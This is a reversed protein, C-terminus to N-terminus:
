FAVGVATHLAIFPGSPGVGDVSYYLYQAGAGGSLVFWGDFIATYGALLSSYGAFGPGESTPDDPRDAVAFVSRAMVWFGEPAGGMPFYRAGVEVGYGRIGDPDGLILPDFLRLHPGAYISLHPSLAREVQLHPFGIAVTLPDVQLTWTPREDAHADTAGFMSLALFCAAILTKQFTKM